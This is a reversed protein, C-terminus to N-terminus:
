AEPDPLRAPATPGRQEDDSSPVVLHELEIPLRGRPQDGGMGKLHHRSGAMQEFLGCGRLLGGVQGAGPKEQVQSPAPGSPKM